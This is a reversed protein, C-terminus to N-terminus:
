SIRLNKTRHYYERCKARCAERNRDQHRRTAEVRCARCGRGGDPKRYTNAEDYPHGQPCHTKAAQYKGALGRQTNVRHTVPELHAPNVCSRNRCLHDLELGEPIPGVLGEYFLAHAMRTRSGMRVMGYGRASRKGAWVWCGSPDKSVRVMERKVRQALTLSDACPGDGRRHM